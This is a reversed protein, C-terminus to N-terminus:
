RPPLAQRLAAIYEDLAADLRGYLLIDFEHSIRQLAYVYAPRDEPRISVPPYSGRILMLNMLVRATRGNGDNFPHIEVLRRHAMFATAPSVPQKGLWAAFDCMLAQIEAPSPFAHRGSGTAVFRAQDAYRGAIEPQSRLM